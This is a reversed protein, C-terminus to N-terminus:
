APYPPAIPDTGSPLPAASARISSVNNTAAHQQRRCRHPLKREANTKEAGPTRKQKITMTQAATHRDSTNKVRGDRKRPETECGALLVMAAPAFAKFANGLRFMSM